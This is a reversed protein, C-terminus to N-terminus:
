QELTLHYGGSAIEGHMLTCSSLSIPQERATDWCCIDLKHGQHHMGDEGVVGSIDQSCAM